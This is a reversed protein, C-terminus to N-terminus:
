TSSGAPRSRSYGPNFITGPWIHVVDIRCCLDPVRAAEDPLTQGLNIV